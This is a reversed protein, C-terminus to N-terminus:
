SGEADDRFLYSYDRYAGQCPTGETHYYLSRELSEPWLALISSSVTGSDKGHICIMDSFPVGSEHDALVERLVTGAEDPGRLSRDTLLSQARRIRPERLDNLNGHTIMYLGNQLRSIRLNKEFQVVATEQGDSLLINFPNFPAASVLKQLGQVADTFTFSELTELCLLGRSRADPVSAGRRNTLAVFLGRENVGLWTGGARRDRGGWVRPSQRLRMPADSPRDYFEERNAGVVLPCGPVSDFLVILLCM